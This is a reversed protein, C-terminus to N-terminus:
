IEFLIIKFFIIKRFFFIINVNWGPHDIHKPKNDKAQLEEKVEMEECIYKIRLSHEESDTINKTYTFNKITLFCEHKNKSSDIEHSFTYDRIIILTGVM